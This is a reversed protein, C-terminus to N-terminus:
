GNRIEKTRSTRAVRYGLRCFYIVLIGQLIPFIMYYPPKTMPIGLIVHMVIPQLVIEIGLVIGIIFGWRIRSLCTAFALIYAASLALVAFVTPHAFSGGIIVASPLEAVLKHVLQILIVAVAAQVEIPLRKSEIM